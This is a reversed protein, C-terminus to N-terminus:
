NNSVVLAVGGTEVQEEDLVLASAISEQPAKGPSLLTHIDAIGFIGAAPDEVILQGPHADDGARLGVLLPAPGQVQQAPQQDILDEPITDPGIVHEAHVAMGTGGIEDPHLFFGRALILIREKILPDELGAGEFELAAPGTAGSALGEFDLEALDLAVAAQKGYREM